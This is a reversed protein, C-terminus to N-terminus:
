GPWVRVLVALTISAFGLPTWSVKEATVKFGDLAFFVVALVLLIIFVLDKPNM